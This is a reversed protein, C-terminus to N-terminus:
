EFICLGLYGVTEALYDSFLDVESVNTLYFLLDFVFPLRLLLSSEFDCFTLLSAPFTQRCFSM